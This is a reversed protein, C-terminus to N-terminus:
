IKHISELLKNHFFAKGLKKKTQSQDLGSKGIIIDVRSIQSIAMNTQIFAFIYM